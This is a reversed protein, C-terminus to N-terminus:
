FFRTIVTIVLWEGAEQVAFAEIQKTAYRKGRWDQDFAYNRRFGTRGYKAPFHEGQEVTARVEAETAGREEIRELAHPHFRIVM